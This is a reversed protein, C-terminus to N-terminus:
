DLQAVLADAGKDIGTKAAGLSGFSAGINMPNPYQKSVYARLLRNTSADYIEVAYMVYGTFAGERGRVTQVGNYLGGAIDFRSLTSIVPTTTDGGTLTLKLRLTNPAPTDALNFRTRLKKAFTTQMYSALASKDTTSMDGFQHDAGQYVAVPELIVSRYASWNVQSTYEYPVRWSKGQADARLSSSSAIGAYKAPQVNSCGALTISLCAVAVALRGTQGSKKMRNEM